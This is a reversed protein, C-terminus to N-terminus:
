ESYEKSKQLMEVAQEIWHKGNANGLVIEFAFRMERIMARAELLDLALDGTEGYLCRLENAQEDTVRM